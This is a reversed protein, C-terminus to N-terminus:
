VCCGDCDMDHEFKVVVDKNIEDPDTHAIGHQCVRFMAFVNPNWIQPWSRMPHDSRNHITCYDGQCQGKLHVRVLKIDSNELTAETTKKKLM